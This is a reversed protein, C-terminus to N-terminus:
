SGKVRPHMALGEVLLEFRLIELKTSPAAPEPQNVVLERVAILLSDGELAGLLTALGTVDGTANLRVAVRAFGDASFTSDPRLQVSGVKVSSEAAQDSVYVALAATAEEVSTTEFVRSGITELERRRAVVSDRMRPLQRLGAEVVALSHATAGADNRVAREWRRWAPIGRGLGIITGIVVVGRGLARLDRKAIALKM